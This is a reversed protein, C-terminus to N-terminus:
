NLIQLLQQLSSRNEYQSTAGIFFEEPCNEVIEKAIKGLQYIDIKDEQVENEPYYQSTLGQGRYWKQLGEDWFYSCDFDIIVPNGDKMLINNPKLDRHYIKNHNLIQISLTLDQLQRINMRPLEEYYPFIMYFTLKSAYTQSINFQYKLSILQVFGRYNLKNVIVQALIEILNNKLKNKLKYLHIEAIEKTKMVIKEHDNILLVVEQTLMRSTSFQNQLKIQDLQEVNPFEQEIRDILDTIENDDLYIKLQQLTYSQDLLVSNSRSIQSLSVSNVLCNQNMLQQSYSNRHFEQYIYSKRSQSQQLRDFDIQKIIEETDNKFQASNVIELEERSQQLVKLLHAMCLDKYITNSAIKKLYEVGERYRGEKLYRIGITYQIETLDSIPVCNDVLTEEQNYQISCRYNEVIKKFVISEQDNYKKKNEQKSKEFQTLRNKCHNFMTIYQYFHSLLLNEYCDQPFSFNLIVDSLTTYLKCDIYQLFQEMIEQKQYYHKSMMQDNRMHCVLILYFQLIQFYSNLKFEYEIKQKLTVKPIDKDKLEIVNAQQKIDENPIQIGILNSRVVNSLYTLFQDCKRYKQTKNFQLIDQLYQNCFDTFISIHYPMSRDDQLLEKLMEIAESSKQLYLSLIMLKYKLKFSFKNKNKSDDYIKNSDLQKTKEYAKIYFQYAENFQGLYICIKAIQSYLFPLYPIFDFQKQFVMSVKRLFSFIVLSLWYEKFRKLLKGLRLVCYLYSEDYTKNLYFVLSTIHPLRQKVNLKKFFIEWPKESHSLKTFLIAGIQNIHSTDSLLSSFTKTFLNEESFNFSLCALKVQSKHLKKKTEIKLQLSNQNLTQQPFQINEINQLMLSCRELMFQKIEQNELTELKVFCQILIQLLEECVDNFYNNCFIQYKPISRKFIPYTFDNIKDFIEFHIIADSIQNQLVYQCGQIFFDFGYLIDMDIPFAQNYHDYHHFQINSINQHKMMFNPDDITFKYVYIIPNLVYKLFTIPLNIDSFEISNITQYYDQQNCLPCLSHFQQM